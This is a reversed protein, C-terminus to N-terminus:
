RYLLTHLEENEFKLCLKRLEEASYPKLNLPTLHSEIKRAKSEGMSHYPLLHVTEIGMASLVTIIDNINKETATFGPILPVRFEVPASEMVLRLMNSTIRKSNGAIILKNDDPNIIKVDFYILDLYPLLLEFKDWSFYGNTEIATHLGEAKCRELLEILFDHHLTPEGGSFTVGGGSTKYYDVDRMIETMVEDASYEKGIIKLAESVCVDVCKGCGNCLQRNIKLGDDFSIANVPCAKACDRSDICKDDYIAVQPKFAMSEPNQCWPCELNCGKFFVVTRIGPGDHISFRQIDFILSHM